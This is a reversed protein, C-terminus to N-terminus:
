ARDRMLRAVDHRGGGHVQQRDARRRAAGHQGGVELRRDVAHPVRPREDAIAHRHDAGAGDAAQRGPQDDRM